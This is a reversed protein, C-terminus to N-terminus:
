MYVTLLEYSETVPSSFYESPLIFPFVALVRLGCSPDTACLAQM